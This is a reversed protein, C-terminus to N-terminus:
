IRFGADVALKCQISVLTSRVARRLAARASVVKYCAQRYGRLRWFNPFARIAKLSRGYAEAYPVGQLEGDLLLALWREPHAAMTGAWASVAPSLAAHVAAVLQAREAAFTPCRLLVHPTDEVEALACRRCHRLAHPVQPRAYRGRMVETPIQDSRWRLIARRSKANGERMYEALERHRCLHRYQGGLLGSAAMRATWARHQWRSVEDALDLDAPCGMTAYLAPLGITELCQAVWRCYNGRPNGEAVTVGRYYDYVRRLTSDPPVEYVRQFLRLAAKVAAASADPLGLDGWIADDAFRGHESSPLRMIIRGAEVQMSDALESLGRVESAAAYLHPGLCNGLYVQRTDLPTMVPDAATVKLLNMRKGEGRVKDILERRRLESITRAAGRTEVQRAIRVGLYRFESSAKLPVGGLNLASRAASPPADNRGGFVVVECKSPEFDYRNRRSNQHAADLLAQLKRRSSAMLVIDDAYSISCVPAGAGVHIGCRTRRLANILDAAMVAFALPAGIVGQAVGRTDRWASSEDIPADGCRVSRRSSMLPSARLYSLARGRIGLKFLRVCLGEHWVSDFASKCDLFAAWTRRRRVSKGALCRAELLWHLVAVAQETNHAKRFGFQTDTLFGREEAYHAIRNILMRHLVAEVHHTVSIGRYNRAVNTPRGHGKHLPIIVQRTWESPLKGRSRWVGNFAALWARVIPLKHQVRRRAAGMSRSLHEARFGCVDASKHRPLEGLAQVLESATFAKDLGGRSKSRPLRRLLRKYSRKVRRYHRRDYRPDDGPPAVASAAFVASLLQQQEVCNRTYSGDDRLLPPIPARGRLTGNIRKRREWPLKERGHSADWRMEVRHRHVTANRARRAIRRIERRAAKLKRLAARMVRPSARLGELRARERKWHAVDRQLAVKLAAGGQEDIEMGGHRWDRSFTDTACRKTLREMREVTVERHSRLLKSAAKGVADGYAAVAERTAVSWATPLLPPSRVARKPAGGDSGSAVPLQVSAEVWRHGDGGALIPDLSHYEKTGGLVRVQTILDALDEDMIIYDLVSRTSAGHTYTTRARANWDNVPRIRWQECLAAFQVGRECRRADESVWGAFVADDGTGLHMNLDGGVVIHGGMADDGLLGSRVANIVCGISATGDRWAAAAALGRVGSRRPPIYIGIVTITTRGLTLTVAVIDKFEGVGADRALTAIDVRRAAFLDSHIIRVGGGAAIRKNGESRHQLGCAGSNDGDTHTLVAIMNQIRAPLGDEFPRWSSRGFRGSVNYTALTVRGERPTGWGETRLLARLGRSACARM